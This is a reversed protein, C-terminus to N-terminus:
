KYLFFEYIDYNYEEIAKNYKKIYVEALRKYTDREEKYIETLERLRMIEKKLMENAERASDYNDRYCLIYLKDNLWADLLDQLDM